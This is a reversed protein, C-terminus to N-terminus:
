SQSYVPFLWEDGAVYKDFKCTARIRLACDVSVIRLQQITGIQIEGPYLPFHILINIM